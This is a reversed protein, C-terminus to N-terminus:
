LALFMLPVVNQLVEFLLQLECELENKMIIFQHTLLLLYSNYDSSQNTMNVTSVMNKVVWISQPKRSSFGHVIILIGIIEIGEIGNVVLQGLQDRFGFPLRQWHPSLCQLSVDFLM